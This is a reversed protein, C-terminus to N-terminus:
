RLLSQVPKPAARLVRKWAEGLGWVAGAENAALAIIAAAYVVHEDIVPNSKLPLASFWMLAMLLTGGVAAARLGIGLFLALGILLLGGMFSWEVWPQSALASFADALWGQLHGLYGATPSGGAVWAKAAPTAFGLGLLKDAFAWLFVGALILRLAALSRGKRSSPTPSSHNEGATAASAVAASPASM